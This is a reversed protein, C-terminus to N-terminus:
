AEARAEAKETGLKWWSQIQPIQPLDFAGKSDQEDRDHGTPFLFFDLGQMIHSESVAVLVRGGWRGRWSRLLDSACASAPALRFGAAEPESEEEADVRGGDPGPRGRRARYRLRSDCGVLSTQQAQQVQRGGEAVRRCQSATVSLGQRGQEEAISCLGATLAKRGQGDAPCGM